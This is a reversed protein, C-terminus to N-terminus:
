KNAGIIEATVTALSKEGALYGPLYKDLLPFTRSFVRNRVMYLTYDEIGESQLLQQTVKGSFYFLYSHWLGNPLRGETTQAVDTITGGVFGTRSGILHHSTEHYLLELWNGYPQDYCHM